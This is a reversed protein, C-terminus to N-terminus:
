LGALQAVMSKPLEIQAIVNEGKCDLVQLASREPVVMLRGSQKTIFRSLAAEDGM